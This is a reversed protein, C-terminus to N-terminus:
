LDIIIDTDADYVHHLSLTKSVKNLNVPTPELNVINDQSGNTIKVLAQAPRTLLGKKAHNIINFKEDIVSDKMIYELQFTRDSLKKHVMGLSPFMTTNNLHDTILVIDGINLEEDPKQKWKFWKKTELLYTSRYINEWIKLDATLAHLQQFRMHGTPDLAESSFFDKRAGFVLKNPSLVSLQEINTSCKINLPRDNLKKSLYSLMFHWDSLYITKNFINSRKLSLKLIKHCSEVLSQRWPSSPSSLRLQIKNRKLVKQLDSLNLTLDEHQIENQGTNALTEIPLFNTGKDAFIFKPLSTGLNNMVTSLGTLVSNASLDHMLMFVTFRSWICTVTLIYAKRKQTRSLKVFVPGFVDFFVAVMPPLKSVAQQLNPGMAAEHTIQRIRKCTRCSLQLKKFFKRAGIVYFNDTYLQALESSPSSVHIHYGQLLKKGLMSTGDVALLQDQQVSTQGLFYPRSLLYVSDSSIHLKFQKELRNIQKATPQMFSLLFYLSKKLCVNFDNYNFHLLYGIIVHIKKFPLHSLDNVISPSLRLHNLMINQNFLEPHLHDESFKYEKVPWDKMDKSLWAPTWYEQHLAHNTVLDLRSGIDAPNDLTDIKFLSVGLSRIIHQCLSYRESYFLKLKATFSCVGALAVESDGFLCYKIVFVGAQLFIESLLSGLQLCMHMSATETKTPSQPGIDGLKVAGVFYTVGLQTKLFIRAVCCEASGDFMMCVTVGDEYGPPLGCRLFSLDKLEIVFSLGQKYLDNFDIPVKDDWGLDPCRTILRRYLLLLNAKVQVFINLPDFLCHSARLAQRKTIVTNAFFSNLQEHNSIDYAPDRLGRCKPSLNVKAQVRWSDSPPLWEIGLSSKTLATSNFSPASLLIPPGPHGGFVWPKLVFGGKKMNESITQTRSQLLPKTKASAWIDDTYSYKIMDHAPPDVSKIFKLSCDLKSANAVFQACKMGFSLSKACIPEFGCGCKCAIGHRKWLFTNLAVDKDALRITNYFQDIDSLAFHKAARINLLTDMITRNLCSGTFQCNNYSVQNGSSFSCNVVLRVPTSASHKKVHNVPHYCVQLQSFGPTVREIDDKWMIINNKLNKEVIADLAQAVEPLQQLKKSYRGMYNEVELKYSPLDKISSNYPINTSYQGAENSSDLQFSISSYLIEEEKTKQLSKRCSNAKCHVCRLVDKHEACPSSQVFHESPAQLAMFYKDELSLQTQNSTISVTTVSTNCSQRDTAPKTWSSVVPEPSASDPVLAEPKSIATRFCRLTNSLSQSHSVESNPACGMLLCRSDLVSKLLTLRGYSDLKEPHLHANDTGIIITFLGAPTIVSSPLSYQTQWKVPVDVKQPEIVNNHINKTVGEITLNGSPTRLVLKGIGGLIQHTSEATKLNYALPCYDWMYPILDDDVITNSSLSDYILLCPIQQNGPGVIPMFQCPFLTRGIPVNNVSILQRSISITNNTITPLGPLPPASPDPRSSGPQNGGSNPGSTVIPSAAPITPMQAPNTPTPRPGFKKKCPCVFFNLSSTCRNCTHKMNKNLKRHFFNDCSDRDHEGSRLCIHCINKQQLLQRIQRVNKNDLLPCKNEKHNEATCIKCSRTPKISTAHSSIPPIKSDPTSFDKSQPQLLEIEHNSSLIAELRNIFDPINRAPRHRLEIQNYGILKQICLYKMENSFEKTHKNLELFRYFNLIEVINESEDKMSQPQKLDRLKQRLSPLIVPFNGFRATLIREVEDFSNINKILKLTENRLRGTIAGKLNSIKTVDDYHRLQNKIDEIWSNFQTPDCNFTPLSSKPALKRHEMDVRMDELGLNIDKTFEKLISIQDILDEEQQLAMNLSGAHEEVTRLVEKLNYRTEEMIIKNNPFSQLTQEAADKAASIKAFLRDIPNKAFLSSAVSEATRDKPVIPSRSSPPSGPLSLSEPDSLTPFFEDDEDQVFTAKKKKKKLKPAPGLRNNLEKNITESIATVIDNTLTSSTISPPKDKGLKINLIDRAKKLRELDSGMIVIDKNIEELTKTDLPIPGIDDVRFTGQVKEAGDETSEDGSVVDIDEVRNAQVSSM